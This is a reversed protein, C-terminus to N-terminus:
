GGDIRAKKRARSARLNALMEREVGRFERLARLDTSSLSLEPPELGHVRAWQNAAEQLWRQATARGALLDDGDRAVAHTNVLDQVLALGAPAIHAGFRQTATWSM